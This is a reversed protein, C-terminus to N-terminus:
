ARLDGECRGGPPDTEQTMDWVRLVEAVSWAQAICGCPTHPPDGDFIESISGLGAEALHDLLPQLLRRAEEKAAQSFGHVRLHAEVYPGILWSWVTGNHYARDRVPRVGGYRGSYQPDGPALSRLGFPTLLHRGLVELVAAQKKAPLPSHALSVAFVQNPRISGDEEDDRVCDYLCGRSQNWFVREFNREARDALSGYRRAMSPDETEFREQLIRLGHYWLANVEVPRGHRSTFVTDGYRADMWTIQVDPNGCRVLGQEDVRIDHDTGAVFAEVVRHCVPGLFGRWSEGDKSASLYADAAHIFWLSADASNYECEGGYDDFRNPILGNRQVDAFTQLVQRAEKLRGTRLLLGDLAIFSDRGWDGFWPYGAIITIGRNAGDSERSVVFQDAATVLTQRVPDRPPSAQPPRHDAAGSASGEVAKVADDPSDAFGVAVLEVSLSGTGTARFAGAWQLDEGGLYERALETRYRINHWWTPNAVFRAATLGDEQRSLMALTVDPQVRDRAWMWRDDSELDWAEIAAQRRLRHFDRMALMPGVELTFRRRPSAGVDYRIRVMQRGTALTVRRRVEIDGDAYTWSVWPDPSSLDCSFDTLAAHGAPELGHNFEWTSLDLLVQGARVRDVVGALLLYRELPPRRSGILWGHYKRTPCGIVTGSAFGGNANTLLWERTLLDDLTGQLARCRALPCADSRDITTGM